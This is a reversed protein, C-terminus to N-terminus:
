FRKRLRIEFSFSDRNRVFNNLSKQEYQAVLSLRNSVRYEFALIQRQDESLNTSYTVLLNRNIQRGVTLRATPTQKIGSIVPSIEFRNLGFLRDTARRIPSNVFADTLLEAATNIGSTATPIGTETNTLSGTTILSVIDAQPLPPNSRVNLSLSSTESLEGSLDVEIRYTQIETEAQLSLFPERDIQSPFELSGRRISYKESRYFLTGENTTIRGILVPSNVDGTVKLDVSATLDAINNRVILADRGILTLDLKPAAFSTSTGETISGERRSGIIDALDIDKSYISRRAYITGAILTEFNDGSRKSAVIIEANGTTIFNKPLPATINRGILELRLGELRLNKLIAGGQAQVRGGGLFGTAEEIQIQNSTFIIRGNIKEFNLRESGIFTSLTSNEIQARGTLKLDQNTGTLRVSVNSIGTLFTDKLFIDLLRLNVRGEISLNNATQEQLAKNGTIVLTSGASAFVAKEFVVEKSDFSIKVPEKNTIPIENIQLSLTQLDLRGRIDHLGFIKNQNSDTAILHGEVKLNGTSFGSVDIGQTTLLALYPSLDATELNGYIEFPLNEDALNVSADLKQQQNGIDITLTSIVKQEKTFTDLTLSGIPKQNISFEQTAAKAAIEYTTTETLEGRIKVVFNLAGDFDPLNQREPLFALIKSVQLNQGEAELDFLTTEGEYRGRVSLVSDQHRIFFRDLNVFEETISLFADLLDFDEGAFKGNKSNLELTGKARNPLGNLLVKGSIKAEVKRLAELSDPLPLAAILNEINFNSISAEISANNELPQPIEIKFAVFGSENEIKANNVRIAKPSIFLDAQLSGIPNEKLSLTQLSVKGEIAPNNLNGALRGKFSLKGAMKIKYDEFIKNLEPSVELAAVLYEIEGAENSDLFIELDSNKSKLDFTGAIILSSTETKLNGNKLTFTGKEALVDIRGNVPISDSPGASAQLNARIAGSAQEFNTQPFTLDLTGNIKGSLPLVRGNQTLLLKSLNVESFSANIKSSNKASFSIVASASLTGDLVEASIDKLQLQENTLLISTKAKGLKVSAIDGNGISLDLSARYKGSPELVFFPKTIVINELKGSQSVTQNKKLLVESIKIDDSTATLVQQKIAVRVGAIDFAATEIQANELKNLKILKANITTQNKANESNIDAASVGSAVLDKAKLKQAFASEIKFNGKQDAKLRNAELDSVETEDSRIRQIKIKDSEINEGTKYIRVKEAKLNKAITQGVKLNGVSLFPTQLNFGDFMLNKTLLLDAQFDKTSAKQAQLSGISAKIKKEEYDILADKMYLSVISGLPSNVAASQLDGLWTISDGRGKINGNLKFLNLKLDGANLMDVLVQGSAEYIGERIKLGGYGQLTKLSFTSTSISDSFVEGEIKYKEGEGTLKGLFTGNGQLATEPTFLIGIKELSIEARVDFSYRFDQLNEIEGILESDIAPSKIKAKTIKAANESLVGEFSLDIPELKKGNYSLFSETSNIRFKYEQDSVPRFNLELNHAKAEIPRSLSNLHIIGNKIELSASSYSLEIYGREEALKLDSFNSKGEEDFEIWVELGNIETANVEIKRAPSFLEGLSVQIVAHQIKFLPKQKSKNIFKANILELRLPFVKITLNESFLEIGMRDLSEILRKKVLADFVGLNYTVFILFFTVALSAVALLSIKKLYVKM